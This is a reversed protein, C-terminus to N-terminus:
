LDNVDNEHNLKWFKSKKVKIQIRKTFENQQNVKSSGVTFRRIFYINSM